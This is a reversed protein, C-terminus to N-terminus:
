RRVRGRSGACTLSLRGLPLARVGMAAPRLNRRLPLPGSLWLVQSLNPPHVQDVAASLGFAARGHLPQLGEVVVDCVGEAKLTYNESLDWCTWDGFHSLPTQASACVTPVDEKSGDSDRRQPSPAHEIETTTCIQLLPGAEAATFRRGRVLRPVPLPFLLYQDFAELRLTHLSAPLPSEPHSGM